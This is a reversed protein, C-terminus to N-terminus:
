PPQRRMMDLMTGSMLGTAGAALADLQGSADALRLDDVFDVIHM